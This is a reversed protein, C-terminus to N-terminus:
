TSPADDFKMEEFSLIEGMNTVNTIDLYSFEFDPKTKEPLNKQNIFAIYKLRKVNWHEPIEGIWNIGSDKMKVDPNLGKTVVHSILSIRKENLLEITKKYKKILNDIRSTEKYIFSTIKEQDEPEIPFTLRFDKIFLEPVRKQGAAGKMFNECVKRFQHTVTIFYLFDTTLIKNSRLVYLETTGFGIKNKLGKAIAGKGNEFCPTIKAILVDNERFYTYGSNVEEIEKTLETNIEGEESINEMPLFTVKLNNPQGSIENKSPSIKCTFRLRRIEWEEPIEGIWEVGSDRYKPYPKM